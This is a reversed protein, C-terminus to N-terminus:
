AAAIEVWARAQSEVWDWDQAAVRDRRFLPSGVGFGEAGAARFAAVTGLDVGGTPMLRVQPLAEKVARVYDVGLGEAPFVKVLIAGAEWATLIETPSLAGPFVALGCALAREMVPRNFAPTVIFAAGATRASELRDLTTVTGAGINLADGHEAVAAAILAPADPTDMTIEVNLLGGRRAADLIPRIEGAAFGRLIGVVPCRWFRAEDLRRTPM